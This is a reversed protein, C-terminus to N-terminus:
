RKRALLGAGLAACFGVLVVAFFKLFLLLLGGIMKWFWPKRPGQEATLEDLNMPRPTEAMLEQATKTPKSIDHAAAYERAIQDLEAPTRTIITTM